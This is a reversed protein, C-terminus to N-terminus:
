GNCVVLVEPLPGVDGEVIHWLPVLRLRLRRDRVLESRDLGLLQLLLLLRLLREGLLHVHRGLCGLPMHAELFLLGCTRLDAVELALNLSLLCLLRWTGRTGIVGSNVRVRVRQLRVMREGLQVRPVHVNLIIVPPM